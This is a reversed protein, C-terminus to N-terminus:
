PSVSIQVALRASGRLRDSARSYVEYKGPPLEDPLELSFCHGAMGAPLHLLVAPFIAGTPVEEGSENLLHYGYGYSAAVTGYNEFRLFGTEGPHLTTASVGLQLNSRATVVRFYQQYKKLAVGSKNVIKIDLRYSGAQVKRSIGFSTHGFEQVSRVIKLKRAILTEDKSNKHIKFLASEVRWRLFGSSPSGELSGQAEFRAVGATVLAEKPPFLRLSAPGVGLRGSSPLSRVPPLGEIPKLFNKIVGASCFGPPNGMAQSRDVPCAVQWCLAAVTMFASARLGM